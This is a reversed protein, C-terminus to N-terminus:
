EAHHHAEYDHREKMHQAAALPPLDAVGRDYEEIKGDESRKCKTGCRPCTTWNKGAHEEHNCSTDVDMRDVRGVSDIKPIAPIEGILGGDSHRSVIM